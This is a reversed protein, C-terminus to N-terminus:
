EVMKEIGKFISKITSDVVSELKLSLKYINSSLKNSYDKEIDKTYGSIDIEKGNKIEEEFIKIQEETLIKAKTKPSEYYGTMQAVLLILFIGIFIFLFYKLVKEKM